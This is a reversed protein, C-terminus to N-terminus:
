VSSTRTHVHSHTYPFSFYLSHAGAWVQLVKFLVSQSAEAGQLCPQSSQGTWRQLVIELIMERMALRLGPWDLSGIGAVWFPFFYRPLLFLIAAFGVVRFVWFPFHFFYPISGLISNLDPFAFPPVIDHYFYFYSSISVTLSFVHFISFLDLLYHKMQIISAPFSSLVRTFYFWFCVALLSFAILYIFSFNEWLIPKCRALPNIFSIIYLKHNGPLIELDLVVSFIKQLIRWLSYLNCVFSLRILM